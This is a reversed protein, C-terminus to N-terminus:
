PESLSDATGITFSSFGLSFILPFGANLPRPNTTFAIIVGSPFLDNFNLRHGQFEFDSSAAFKASTYGIQVSGDNIDQTTGFELIGIPQGESFTSFNSWNGHPGENLYITLRGPPHLLVTVTGNPIVGTSFPDSRFTFFATAESPVGSFLPGPVGAIFTFYGVGVGTGDANVADREVGHSAIRSAPLQANGAGEFFVILTCIISIRPLWKRAIFEVPQYAM